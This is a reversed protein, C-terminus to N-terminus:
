RFDIIWAAGLYPTYFDELPSVDFYAGAIWAFRDNALNRVFVGGLTEWYWSEDDTKHGLPAVFAAVQWSPSAQRVWGLPVAVSLVEQDDRAADHLDFRTWSVWEGIAVADRKGIPIPVLAAQSLSTQQYTVDSPGGDVQRFESEQYGSATVWAMPPLPANSKARVFVFDSEGFRRVLSDVLGDAMVTSSLLLTALLAISRSM